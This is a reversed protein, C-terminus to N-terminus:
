FSWNVLTMWIMPDENGNYNSAGIQLGQLNDTANFLGVQVGSMNKAYNVIGLQFGAGIGGVYNVIGTEFGSFDAKTINVAGIELGVSRAGVYNLIGLNVGYSSGNTWNVPGLSVGRMDRNTNAWGTSLTLGAVDQSNTYILNFRLGAISNQDNILQIPDWVSIQLPRTKEAFALGTLCFSLILCFLGIKRIKLMKGGM